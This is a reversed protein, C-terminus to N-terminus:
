PTSTPLDKAPSLERYLVDIAEAASTATALTVRAGAQDSIEWGNVCVVPTGTRMALAIESLTGWSGGVAIVGDVSRVLLGNRLEGLGTPIAVDVFDNADRADGSPLLGVVLGSASRAGESAAEMVGGLGGTVVVAGRQALLQGVAYAIERLADDADNPGVVAIAFRRATV